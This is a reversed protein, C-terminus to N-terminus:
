KKIFYTGRSANSSDTEDFVRKQLRQNLKEASLLRGSKAYNYEVRNIRVPSPETASRQVANTQASLYTDTAGAIITQRYIKAM